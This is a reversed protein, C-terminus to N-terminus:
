SACNCGCNNTVLYAPIPAPTSRSLLTNVTAQLPVTQGSVYNQLYTTQANINAATQLQNVQATLADIKNQCMIDKIDQLGSNMAALTADQKAGMANFGAGM